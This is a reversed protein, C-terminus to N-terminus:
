ARKSAVNATQKMIRAFAFNGTVFQGLTKDGFATKFADSTAKIPVKYIPPDPGDGLYKIVNWPGYFSDTAPDLPRFLLENATINLANMDKYGKKTEAYAPDVVFKFLLAFLIALLTSLAAHSLSSVTNEDSMIYEIAADLGEKFSDKSNFIKLADGLTYMVGQVIVPVHKLLPVLDKGDREEGTSEDIYKKSGDENIIETYVRGYEDLFLLNGNIDTDQETTMKHVNYKGPKMMWNNWIGNMWTTYMGFFTGIATFEGMSRLSKDYSGYINNSVNKIAVIEQDSYPTPLDDTYGLLRRNGNEDLIGKPHDRNFDQIHLMYLAQQEKYEKTGKKSKDAYISFRKDKKWDYKLEGDEVSWADLVGDQMARAIFLTMRNLFDPSRLTSYAINDWNSLGQRNTRLREAIRATDTNSLRYRVCLKSLLTVKMADMSGNKVVYAYAKSMNASTIDTLYKSCTRLYNEMFGNEVDRAASIINGALNLFTVKSRAAQGIGVVKQSLGGEIIPKKFVNLGIYEKIYEEQKKFSDEFGSNEGLIKLQLLLAKTGLLMRNMKETQIANFMRDILLNEVNTEFYDIGNEAIYSARQEENRNFSDKLRLNELEEGLFEREEKTLKNVYEDYINQGKNKILIKLARKFRSVRDGPGRQRRTAKSARELPVNLYENHELIYKPINPDNESIFHKNDTNLFNYKNFYFLAKKLFKREYDKLSPDTYPNKFKMTKNGLSDREYMNEFLRAQTGLTMNEISSYGAEKYFEMIFNRLNQSYEVDSDNAISDITTQLSTVVININTSPVTPATYLYKQYLKLEEEYSVKQNTYYLYANSVKIYFKALNGLYDRNKSVLQPNNVIDPFQEEFSELISLLVKAKQEATTAKKLEEKDILKNLLLSSSDRQQTIEIFQKVLSIFQDVFKCKGFNNKINLDPNYQKTVKLITPLYDKIIHEMNYQMHMGLSQYSVIHQTGLVINEPLKDIISNLLVLTRVSEINGYFGKWLFDRDTKYGGLINTGYTFQPIQKLNKSSITVTDLQGEKNKFLLIGYDVLTDIFEWDYNAKIIKGTEDREFNGSLYPALMTRLYSANKIKGFDWFDLHRNLTHQIADAIKNSYNPVDENLEEVYEKVLSIIKKNNQKDSFDDILHVKDGIKVSYRHEGDNIETILLPYEEGQSPARRIWEQVTKNINDPKVQLSPFIADLIDKAEIKETLKMPQVRSKDKIFFRADIDQKSLLYNGKESYQYDLPHEAEVYVDQITKFDKSYNLEIPVVYMKINKISLGNNALMQKLFAIEYQYKERKEKSWKTYHQSSAKFNYIHLVGRDDIIAYDIHGFLVTDSFNLKSTVNIGRVAKSDSKYGKIRAYFTNFGDFLKGLIEDNYLQSRKGVITKAQEIFNKRREPETDKSGGIFKSIALKHLDASNERILPWSDVENKTLLKAQQESMGRDTYQLIRHKVFDEANLPTYIRRGNIKAEESDDLFSGISMENNDGTENGEEDLSNSSSLKSSIARLNRLINEQQTQLQTSDASYIVDEVSNYIEKEDLYRYLDEISKNNFDTGPIRYKCNVTM